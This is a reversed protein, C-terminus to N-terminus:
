ENQRRKEVISSNLIIANHAQEKTGSNNWAQLELNCGFPMSGDENTFLIFDHCTSMTSLAHAYQDLKVNIREDDMPETEYWYNCWVLVDDYESLLCECCNTRYYDEAFELYRNIDEETKGKFSMSVFIKIIM